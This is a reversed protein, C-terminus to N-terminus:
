KSLCDFHKFYAINFIKRTLRLLSITLFMKFNYNINTNRIKYFLNTNLFKIIYNKFSIIM